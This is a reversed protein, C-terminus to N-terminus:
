GPSYLSIWDWFDLGLCLLCFYFLFLAGWVCGFVFVLFVCHLCSAMKMEQSVWWKKSQKQREKLWTKICKNKGCCNVSRTVYGLTNWWSFSLLPRSKGDVPLSCVYALTLQANMGERAMLSQQCSSLNTAIANLIRCKIANLGAIVATFIRTPALYSDNLNFTLLSRTWLWCNPHTVSVWLLLAVDKTRM